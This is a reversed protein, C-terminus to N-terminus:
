EILIVTGGRPTTNKLGSPAGTAGEYPCAEPKDVGAPAADTDPLQCQTLWLVENVNTQSARPAFTVTASSRWRARVLRLRTGVIPAARQMSM